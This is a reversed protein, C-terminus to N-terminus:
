SHSTQCWHRSKRLISGTFRSSHTSTSSIFRGTKPEAQLCAVMQPHPSVILSRSNHYKCEQQLTEPSVVVIDGNMYSVALLGINLVPNFIMDCTEPSSYADEFGEPMFNGIKSVYELDWLAVSSNRYSLAALRHDPDLRIRMAPTWAGLQEDSGDSSDSDSSGHLLIQRERSGDSVKFIVLASGQPNSITIREGCPSFSVSHSGFDLPQSWLCSFSTWKSRDIRWLKVARASCSFLLSSAHNFGLQRVREGHKLVGVSDFTGSSTGNYLRIEGNRLGVALLRDCCAISYAEVSFLYCTLRDSWEEELSGTIRVRKTPKAFLQHITSKLPCFHPILFYISAPSALLCAHFVAVIHGIDTVWGSVTQMEDSARPQSKTRLRMYAKLRQAAHQLPALGDTSTTREIWTLVNSKLFKNLLILPADASSSSHMLHYAFNATAYHALPGNTTAKPAGSGRRTRPPVFDPGCLITLCVEAIRSHAAARDIWFGDRQQTLFAATTEHTIHIRSEDDVFILHGTITGLQSPSATVTRGIDRKVADVLESAALPRPSCVTWKLICKALDSSPTAAISAIIRSYFDDMESPIQSLIDQMDEISYTNELRAVTLSVWLFIGNSKSLIDAVLNQYSGDNSAQPCRAALFLEIDELSGAQGTNLEYFPTHELQLLRELHGGPRSTIFVRINNNDAPSFLASLMSVFTPLDKPSCEDVADIVWFHPKTIKLRLIRDVFLTRWLMNHDDTNVKVEDQVLSIICRRVDFSAEAMQYALSRLMASVTSAAKDDHRFFYFSCDLNCAELYRVVHGVAVSKGTGPRGNLWLIRSTSDSSARQVPEIDQWDDLWKEFSEDATLWKCSGHQQKQNTALLITDPRQDVQLLSSVMKM